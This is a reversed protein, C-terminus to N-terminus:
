KFNKSVEQQIQQRYQLPSVGICKKFVSLFYKYDNYGVEGAIQTISKTENELIRCAAKIRVLQLYEFVTMAMCDKFLKCLYTPSLCAVESLEKLQIKDQYNNQIYKCTNEISLSRKKEVQEYLTYSSNFLRLMKVFLETMYARIITEYGEAKKQYEHYMKEFLESIPFSSQEHLEIESLNAFENPFSLSFLNHHILDKFNTIVSVAESVFEPRFILNCITLNDGSNEPVSKFAHPVDYDIIFFHGPSIKRTYKDQIHIGRGSVVYAIEIFDHIHMHHQGRGIRVRNLYFPECNGNLESLRIVPYGM